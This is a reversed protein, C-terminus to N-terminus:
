YKEGMINVVLATWGTFPRCGSGEGTKDNYQEWVYGSKRYQRVVNEMVNARLERYIERAQNRFPGEVEGYHNLAAIALYNVNIWVQGRWYPPDHETNRKMYLPSSPALSRLGYETWLLEPNRIDTLIKRLVHSDPEVLRMLFPFINVYGFTTDVLRYEPNKLTVRVLELNQHESRPLPKPRKLIVSDTHLGYDAFSQAYESWHLQSMLKNDKLYNATQEYKFFDRKLLKSMKSMTDAAMAIWCYLDIHREHETPHSARPFDDLGSTLTKPNLERKTLPDRGKWIYSGPATGKQTANFWSFWAQLRPYLRELLELRQGTLSEEYNEIIHRLTLFFTPPNANTNRQVVFQEPVKALSEVGLIQERPIWGEANMLDFWHSIIDLEMDLDWQSLLLGHFGEDWLFGRPFFSRSPVGTYLPANWYYVPDANYFSQVRSAGYFYGIGGVTNSLTSQAFEIDDDKFGKKQLGFINEFKQGFRTSHWNLAQTYSEGSFTDPRDYFSGSEYVIDISFPVRGQIQTVIFNPERKELGGLPQTEGALVIKKPGDPKSSMLRLNTIVTEKLLHLGPAETSLFSENEIVGSNNFIKIVFQGLGSTEGRVGTIKTASNTPKIFGKTYEDLATYWLLAAEENKLSAYEPLVDVEVRATWDGGHKGGPRKVFSTTLKFPGDIIEQVGFNYGDHKKWGYKSLNDNQECWHRIGDGGPRLTRPFYWMLGNVLSNAERTKLGFYTGPRYSGWYLLPVDLGSKAVVKASDFPTIVRTELYGLYGFVVAIFLVTCGIIQKWFMFIGTAPKAKTDVYNSGNSSSSNTGKDNKKETTKRQRAM